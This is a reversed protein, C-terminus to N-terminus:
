IPKFGILSAIITKDSPKEDGIGFFHDGVPCWCQLLTRDVFGSSPYPILRGTDPVIQCMGGHEPCEKLGLRDLAVPGRDVWVPDIDEWINHSSVYTQIHRIAEGDSMAMTVWVAGNGRIKCVWYAGLQRLM